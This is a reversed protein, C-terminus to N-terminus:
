RWNTIRTQESAQYLITESITGSFSAKITKTFRSKNAATVMLGDPHTQVRLGFDRPTKGLAAMLEFEGYLRESAATIRSYWGVLQSTTYLRCVDLYGPRYGFWRGMQMLTDYM